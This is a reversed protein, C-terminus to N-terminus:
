LVGAATIQILLEGFVHGFLPWLHRPVHGAHNARAPHRSKPGPQHDEQLQAKSLRDAAVLEQLNVFLQMPLSCVEQGSSRESHATSLWFRILNCNSKFFRNLIVWLLRMATPASSWTSSGSRPSTLWTNVYGVPSWRSAEPTPVRSIRRRCSMPDLALCQPRHEM